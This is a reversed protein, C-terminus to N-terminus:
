AEAMKVITLDSRGSEVIRSREKQAYMRKDAVAHLHIQNKGDDPYIAAGISASAQLRAGNHLVIPAELSKRMAEGMTEADRLRDIGELIVSFEDGGTRAVTDTKRLAARFRDSVAQLLEDGARHGLTDNVQKFKNLDIVLFGFGAGTRSAWAVARDFRDIYLRRNPLGTLEDHTAIHTASAIREELLVLIMGAAALFKPLNWVLSEIHGSVTPAYIMLLSYIPFVLGWLVFSLATFIVGMTLCPTQRVFFYAAALYIWCMQWQSAMTVGWAGLVLAQIGYVLLALGVSAQFHWPAGSRDAELLWVTSAACLVILLYFMDHYGEAIQLEASATSTVALILNLLGFLVIRWKFGSM